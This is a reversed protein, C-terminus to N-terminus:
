ETTPTAQGGEAAPEPRRSRAPAGAPRPPAESAASPGPPPRVAAAAGAASRPPAPGHVPEAPSWHRPPDPWCRPGAGSGAARAAHGPGVGPVAASRGPVSPGRRIRGPALCECSPPGGGAPVAATGSGGSGAGAPPGGCGTTRGPPPRPSPGELLGPACSQAVKASSWGATRWAESPTESNEAGRPLAPAAPPTQAEAPERPQWSRSAACCSPPAATERAPRGPPRSPPRARLPPLPTTLLHFLFALPWAPPTVRTAVPVSILPSM